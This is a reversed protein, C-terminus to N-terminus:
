SFLDELTSSVTAHHYKEFLLPNRNQLYWHWEPTNWMGESVGNWNKRWNKNTQDTRRLEVFDRRAEEYAAEGLQLMDERFYCVLSIRQFGEEGTIPTNGHIWDHNGVLLLDGPQLDVAAKIEPLVLYGGSFPKKSGDAVVCLNSFGTSLDGADRHAATRFNKNVTITTFPTGPVRFAPDLRNACEIQSAYREPLLHQFGVSLSNLFPYSKVFRELNQQTYATPRGYPIRPVRGFWGAIGSDVPNAYNTDSILTDMVWKAGTRISANPAKIIVEVWRDFDFGHERVATDVWVTGRNEDTQTNLEKWREIDQMEPKLLENDPVNALQQLIFLQSGTVYHRGKERQEIPGAALGRNFTNKAAQALGEYAGAQEEKTFWGKRFKLIVNNETKPTVVGIDHDSQQYVDCDYNIIKDYHSEDLFTGLLDECDIKPLTLCTAADKISKM